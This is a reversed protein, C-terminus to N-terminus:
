SENHLIHKTICLQNINPCICISIFTANKDNLYFSNDLKPSLKKSHISLKKSDLKNLPIRIEDSNIKDHLEDNNIFVGKIYQKM